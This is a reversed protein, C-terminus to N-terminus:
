PKLWVGGPTEPESRALCIARLAGVLLVHHRVHNFRLAPINDWLVLQVLTSKEQVLM